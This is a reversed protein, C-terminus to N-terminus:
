ICIARSVTIVVNVNSRLDLAYKRLGKHYYQRGRMIIPKTLTSMLKGGDRVIKTENLINAAGSICIQCWQNVKSEIEANLGTFGLM